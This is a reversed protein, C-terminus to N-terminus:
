TLQVDLPKGRRALLRALGRAVDMAAVLPPVLVPCRDLDVLDHSRAAMFGALIRGRDFRLHLIVRRRGNGTADVTADVGPALGARDLAEVLRQRKWLRSAAPAWHQLRCGGCHGFHRCFPTVREPSPVLVTTLRGSADWEITEGPLAGAIARAEGDILGDGRADLGRVRKGSM